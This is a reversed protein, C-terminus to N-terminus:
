AFSGLVLVVTPKSAPQASAVPSLVSADILRGVDDQGVGAVPM